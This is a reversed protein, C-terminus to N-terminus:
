SNNPAANHSAESAALKTVPASIATSPPKEQMDM